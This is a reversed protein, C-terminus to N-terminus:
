PLSRFLRFVECLAIYKPDYIMDLEEMKHKRRYLSRLISRYYHRECFIKLFPYLICIAIYFVPITLIGYPWGSLIINTIVATVSLLYIITAFVTQWKPTIADQIGSGIKAGVLARGISFTYTNYAINYGLLIALIGLIYYIEIM